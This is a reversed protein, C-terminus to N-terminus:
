KKTIHDWIIKALFMIISTILAVAGGYKGSDFAVSKSLGKIDSQMDKVSDSISKTKSDIKSELEIRLRSDLDRLGDNLKSELNSIKDTIKERRNVIDTLRLDVNRQCDGRIRKENDFEKDIVDVKTKIVPIDGTSHKLEEIDKTIDEVLDRIGRQQELLLRILSAFDNANIDNQTLKEM